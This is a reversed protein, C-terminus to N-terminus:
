RNVDVNFLNYHLSMPHVVWNEVVDTWYAEYLPYDTLFIKPSEETIIRQLEAYIEYREEYPITERGREMLEDVEPNVYGVANRDSESHFRRFFNADPDRGTNSAILLTDFDHREIWMDLMDGWEVTRIQMEIGVEALQEAMVQAIEIDIPFRTSAIISSEFGNPYGAEALMERALDPDHEYGPLEEVPLAWDGMSPPIPGTPSANGLFVLDVIEQRDIAYSMALRVRADDFPERRNNLHYHLIRPMGTSDVTINPDMELPRVIKPDTFRAVDVDGSRLATVRTTPDAIVHYEVTDVAPAGEFFDDFAELVFRSDPEYEVLEFPGAGVADFRLDGHEEVAEEPHVGLGFALGHLIPAFPEETIIRLTHDDLVEVREIPELEFAEPSPVDPDLVREISYKVDEATILRGNHFRVDDRLQFEYTTDDVIEYDEALWPQLSLDQGYKFLTPYLLAVVRHAEMHSLQAPDFNIPDVDIAIRLTKQAMGLSALLVGVTFVMVLLTRTRM